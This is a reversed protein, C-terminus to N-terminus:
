FSSASGWGRKKSETQEWCVLLDKGERGALSVSPHSLCPLGEQDPTGIRQHSLPLVTM